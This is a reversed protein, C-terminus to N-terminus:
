SRYRDCSINTCNRTEMEIDSVYWDSLFYQFKLFFINSNQKNFLTYDEEKKNLLLLGEGNTGVWLQNYNDEFLYNVERIKIPNAFDSKKSYDKILNNKEDYSFLGKGKVGFRGCWENKQNAEYNNPFFDEYKISYLNPYLEKNQADLFNPSISLASKYNDIAENHSGINSLSLGM